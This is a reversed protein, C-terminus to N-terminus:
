VGCVKKIKRLLVFRQYTASVTPSGNRKGYDTYKNSSCAVQATLSNIICEHVASDVKRSKASELNNRGIEYVMGFDTKSFLLFCTSTLDILWRTSSPKGQFTADIKIANFRSFFMHHLSFSYKSPYYLFEHLYATNVVNKGIQSWDELTM